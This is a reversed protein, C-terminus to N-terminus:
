VYIEDFGRSEFFRKIQEYVWEAEKKNVHRAVVVGNELFGLDPSSYFYRRGEKVVYGADWLETNPLAERIKRIAGRKTLVRGTKRSIFKM